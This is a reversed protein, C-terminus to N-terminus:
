KNNILININDTLMKANKMGKISISYEENYTGIVIDGFNLLKGLLTQSCSVFTINRILITSVSTKLVFGVRYEIKDEYVCIRTGIIFVIWLMLIMIGFLFVYFHIYFLIISIIGWLFIDLNFLSMRSKYICKKM